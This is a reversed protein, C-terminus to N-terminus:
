KFLFICCLFAATVKERTLKCCGNSKIMFTHFVINDASAIKSHVINIQADRYAQIVGKASHAELPCTVQVSARCVKFVEIGILTAVKMNFNNSDTPLFFVNM